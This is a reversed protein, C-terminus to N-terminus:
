INFRSFWRRNLLSIVSGVAQQRQAQHGNISALQHCHSPQIPASEPPCLNPQKLNNLYVCPRVFDTLFNCNIISPQWRIKGPFHWIHCIKTVFSGM